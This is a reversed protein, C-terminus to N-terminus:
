QMELCKAYTRITISRTSKMARRSTSSGGPAASSPDPGLPIGRRRRVLQHVGDGDAGPVVFPEGYMETQPVVFSADLGQAIPHGPNIVWVREKEGAERWKLACPTGMPKRLDELFPWLPSRYAGNRGSGSRSVISSRTASTATCPPGVLHPRRHSALRDVPLGHEPQELTATTAEIAADDNLADAIAGHMGKPYIEQVVANERDHINEWVVARIAM